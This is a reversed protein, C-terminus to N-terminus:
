GRLQTAPRRACVRGGGRVVRHRNRRERQGRHFRDRTASSRLTAGTAPTVAAVDFTKTEGVGFAGTCTVTALDASPACGPALDFAPDYQNGTTVVVTIDQPTGSNTVKASLLTDDGNRVEAPASTLDLAFAFRMTTLEGDFDRDDDPGVNFEGNAARVTASTFVSTASPHPNVTFTFSQAEGPYLRSARCEAKGHKTRCGAPLNSITGRAVSLKATSGPSQSLTGNNKITVTAPFAAVAEAPATVDVTVNSVRLGAAQGPVAQVGLGVGAVATVLAM